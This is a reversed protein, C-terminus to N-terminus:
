LTIQGPGGLAIRAVGGATVVAVDRGARRLIPRAAAVGCAAVLMMSLLYVVM